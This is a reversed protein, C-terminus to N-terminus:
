KTKFECIIDEQHRTMKRAHKLKLELLVWRERKCYCSAPSRQWSKRLPCLSSSCGSCESSPLRGPCSWSSIFVGVYKDYLRVSSISFAQCAVWEKIQRKLTNFCTHIYYHMSSPHHPPLRDHTGCPEIGIWMAKIKFFHKWLPLM